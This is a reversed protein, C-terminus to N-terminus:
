SKKVLFLFIEEQRPDSFQKKVTEVTDLASLGSNETLRKKLQDLPLKALLNQNFFLLADGSSMKLKEEKLGLAFEETTVQGVPLGSAPFVKFENVKKNYFLFTNFGATVLSLTNTTIDFQGLLLNATGLYYTMFEKNMDTLLDRFSAERSVKNFMALVQSASALYNELKDDAPQAVCFSEQFPSTQRIMLLNRAKAGPSSHLFARELSKLGEQPPSFLLDVVGKRIEAERAPLSNKSSEEVSRLSSSRIKEFASKIEELVPAVYDPPNPKEAPKDPDATLGRVYDLMKRNSPSFLNAIILSFVVALLVMLTWVVAVSVNARLGGLRVDSRNFLFNIKRIKLGVTLDFFSDANIKVPIAMFTWWRNMDERVVPAFGEPKLSFGAQYLPFYDAPLKQFKYAKITDPNSSYLLRLDKDTVWIEQVSSDRLVEAAIGNFLNLKERDNASKMAAQGVEFALSHITQNKYIDLYKKYLFVEYFLAIVVFILFFLFIVLVPTVSQIRTKVPPNAATEEM